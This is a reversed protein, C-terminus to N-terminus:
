TLLKVNFNLDMSYKGIRELSYYPIWLFYRIVMEHEEWEVAQEYFIVNSIMKNKLRQSLAYATRMLCYLRGKTTFPVMDSFFGKRGPVGFYAHYVEAFDEGVSEAKKPRFADFHRTIEKEIFSQGTSYGCQNAYYHGVEHCLTNRAADINALNIVGESPKDSNWNNPFVGIELKDKNYFLGSAVQNGPTKLDFDHLNVEVGRKDTLTPHRMDWLWIDLGNWFDYIPMEAGLQRMVNDWYFVTGIEDPHNVYMRHLTVGNSLENRIYGAM